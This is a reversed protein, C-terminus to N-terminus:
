EETGVELSSERTSPKCLTVTHIPQEDSTDLDLLAAIKDDNFGAYPRADLQLATAVLLINESMHGSEILAHLYALDGYKASSRQWVSTFVLLASLPLSPPHAALEKMDFGIPLAGINELAHRTPDYHFASPGSGEIATTILYTEVPYLAGGSPYNRRKDKRERLSLGLLTGLEQLSIATDPDGTFASHRESLAAALSTSLHAPEPLAVQEMRPYSKHTFRPVDSPRHTAGRRTLRARRLDDHLRSLFTM